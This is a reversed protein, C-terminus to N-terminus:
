EEGIKRDERAVNKARVKPGIVPEPPVTVLPTVDVRTGEFGFSWVLDSGAQYIMLLEQMAAAVADM